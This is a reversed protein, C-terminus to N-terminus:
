RPPRGAPPRRRPVGSPWRRGPAPCSPSARPRGSRRSSSPDKRRGPCGAPCRERHSSRSDTSTSRPLTVWRRVTAAPAASDLDREQAQGRARRASRRGARCPRSGAWHPWGILGGRRRGGRPRGSGHGLSSGHGLPASTTPGAWRGPEDDHLPLEVVPFPREADKEVGRPFPEGGCLAHRDARAVSGLDGASAGAAGDRLARLRAGALRGRRDERV